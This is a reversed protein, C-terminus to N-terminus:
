AVELETFKCGTIEKQELALKIDERVIVIDYGWLRFLRSEGIKSKDLVVKQVDTFTGLMEPRQEWFMLNSKTYIRYISRQRHLCDIISLYNAISYGTIERNSKEGRMILPLYQIDTIGLREILERLRSSYIPIAFGAFPFDTPETDEHFTAVTKSDWHQIYKGEKVDWWYIDASFQPETVGWNPNYLGASDYDAEPFWEYFRM